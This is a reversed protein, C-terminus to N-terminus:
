AAARGAGIRPGTGKAPRAQPPPPNPPLPAGRVVPVGRCGLDPWVLVREVEVEIQIRLAYIRLWRRWIAGTKSWPEFRDWREGLVTPYDAVPAALRARGQVLVYEPRKSEAHARSHYVLAVRPDRRIRELKRWAGVSSNIAAITGAARDRLAFNDVPLLVVGKAPTLYALAIVHDGGIM